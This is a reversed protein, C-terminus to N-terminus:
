WKNMVEEIEDIAEDIKHVFTMVNKNIAYEKHTNLEDIVYLTLTENKNRAYLLGINKIKSIALIGSQNSLNISDEIDKIKDKTKDKKM